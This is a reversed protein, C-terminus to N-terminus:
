DLEGLNPEAKFRVVAVQVPVGKLLRGDLERQATLMTAEDVYEIVGTRGDPNVRAYTPQFQDGGGAGFGKVDSWTCGWPLDRVKLQFGGQQHSADVVLRHGRLQM